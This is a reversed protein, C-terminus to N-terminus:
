SKVLVSIAQVWSDRGVTVRHDPFDITGHVTGNIFLAEQGSVEGKIVISSGITAQETVPGLSPTDWPNLRNGPNSLNDAM